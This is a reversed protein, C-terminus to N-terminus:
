KFCCSSSLSCIDSTGTVACTCLVDGGHLCVCTTGNCDAEWEDAPDDCNYLFSCGGGSSSGGCFSLSSLPPLTFCSTGAGGAGPQTTVGGTGLAGTGAAGTGTAAGMGQGPGDVVVNGSCACVLVVLTSLTGFVAKKM